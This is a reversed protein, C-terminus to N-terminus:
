RLNYMAWKYRTNKTLYIKSTGEDKLPCITARSKILNKFSLLEIM